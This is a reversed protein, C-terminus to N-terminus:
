SAVKQRLSGSGGRPQGETTPIEGAEMTSKFRRLDERVDKEPNQGVLRALAVAVRGGTPRYEFVVRVVTGRAGPAQTFHVSGAHDVDATELSRWAILENEVENIIEAEWEYAVGMPGKVRWHSRKEDIVEVSEVNRMFRPLNEFNRWYAYLEEAGSNITVSQEVRISHTARLSSRTTEEREGSSDVGLGAYVPCFGTAGRYALAGGLLALLTGPPSKRTAGYVALAGGFGVSAIREATGVNPPAPSWRRERIEDNRREALATGSM